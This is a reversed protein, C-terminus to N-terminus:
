DVEKDIVGVNLLTVLKHSIDMFLEKIKIKKTNIRIEITNIMIFIVMMFILVGTM